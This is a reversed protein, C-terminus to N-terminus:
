SQKLKALRKQEQSLAKRLDQKLSPVQLEEVLRDIIEPTIIVSEEATPVIKGYIKDLTDVPAFKLHNTDSVSGKSDPKKALLYDLHKIGQLAKINCYLRYSLYLGPVNPLVPVLAVPLSIPIGIACLWSYKVHHRYANERFSHLQGLIKSPHQFSPHYLPIPVLQELPIKQNEFHSHLITTTKAPQEFEKLEPSMNSILQETGVKDLNIERIMAAKLPFSKLCNEEYPITDLLSKILKVIRVNWSKDSLLLKNWGKTAFDIIKNEYKVVLPVTKRQSEHLLGPKHHCYIYSKASTIPISIV